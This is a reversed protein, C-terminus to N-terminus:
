QAGGGGAGAGIGVGGYGTNANPVIYSPANGALISSASLAGSGLLSMVLQNQLNVQTMTLAAVLPGNAAAATISATLTTISTQLAFNVVDTSPVVVAM